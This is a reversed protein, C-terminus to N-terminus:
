FGCVYRWGIASGGTYHGKHDWYYPWHLHWSGNYYYYASPYIHYKRYYGLPNSSLDV